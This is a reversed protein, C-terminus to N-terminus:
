GQSELDIQFVAISMGDVSAIAYISERGPLEVAWANNPALRYGYSTSSVNPKAGIFIYGEDNVSQLTLDMGGHVGVPSLRVAVDTNITILAHSAM